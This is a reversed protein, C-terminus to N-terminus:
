HLTPITRPDYRVGKATMIRGCCRVETGYIDCKAAHLFLGHQLCKNYFHELAELVREEDTVHIM